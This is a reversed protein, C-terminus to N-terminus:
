SLSDQVIRGHVKTFHTEVALQDLRRKQRDSARVAPVLSEPQSLFAQEVLATFAVTLLVRRARRCCGPLPGINNHEGDFYLWRQQPM